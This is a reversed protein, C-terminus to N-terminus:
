EDNENQDGEPAHIEANDKSKRNKLSHKVKGIIKRLSQAVYQFEKLKGFFLFFLANAIVFPVAISVVAQLLVSEFLLLSCVMRSVFMALAIVAVYFLLRLYFRSVKTKLVHKHVIYPDFWANMSIFSVATGIFVGIFGIQTALIYSVVLNIISGIIPRIQGQVFLGFSDRFINFTNVMGLLFFNLIIVFVVDSDLLFEAGVWLTIIPQFATFLVVSVLGYIWIGLLVMANYVTRKHEVGAKVHLNGVSATVSSLTQSILSYFAHVILYYNSYLGVYTLGFLWSILLNDTANVVIGSVRYFFLARINKFIATREEKPLKESSDYQIPYKRDCLKAIVINKVFTLVIQTLLYAVFDRTILLVIIQSISLVAFHISDIISALYQRQDAVLLSRKYAFFYTAVKNFLFLSYLLYISEDIKPVEKILHPIFPLLVLGIAAIVLAIYRYAKRFYVMLQQLKNQDHLALPKYLNFTIARGIGLEALSLISLINSFLGDIGLYEVTLTKIFVVRVIASFLISVTYAITSATANRVSNLTRM